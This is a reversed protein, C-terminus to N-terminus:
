LSIFFVWFGFKHMYVYQFLDILQYFIEDNLNRVALVRISFKLAYTIAELSM